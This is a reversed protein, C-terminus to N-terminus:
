RSTRPGDPPPRRETRRVKEPPEGFVLGSDIELEPLISVPVATGAPYVSDRGYRRDAGLVYVRTVRTMPDVIWYERVAHREYLNLKQLQDKSGTSPSLIEIVMDPAGRCGREDINSPDCVLVLDPQVVTGIEEDAEDRDPLRVDFPAVYVRCATGRLHNAFQRSLEVLYEQHLPAPAPSMCYPVGDILEWREEEPWTLYDGYTYGSDQGPMPMLSM